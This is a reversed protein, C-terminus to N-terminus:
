ADITFQAYYKTQPDRLERLKNQKVHKNASHVSEVINLNQSNCKETSGQLTRESRAYAAYEYLQQTMKSLKLKM